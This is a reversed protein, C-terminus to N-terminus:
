VLINLQISLITLKLNYVNLTIRPQSKDAVISTTFYYHQWVYQLSIIRVLLIIVLSELWHIIVLSELWYFPSGLESFHRFTFVM